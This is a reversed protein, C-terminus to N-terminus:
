FEVTLTASAGDGATVVPAPDNLVLTPRPSALGGGCIVNAGGTQTTISCPRVVEVSVQVTQQASGPSGAATLVPGAVVVLALLALARRM